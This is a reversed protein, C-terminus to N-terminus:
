PAGRDCAREAGIAEMIELGSHGAPWGAYHAVHTMIEVLQDRTFGQHFAAKLHPRLERDRGLAALLAVNILARDRFNLQGKVNPDTARGYIAGFLHDITLREFETQPAERSAGFYAKYNTQGGSSESGM